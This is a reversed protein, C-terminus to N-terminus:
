CVAYDNGEGVELKQAFNVGFDGANLGVVAAVGVGSGKIDVWEFKGRWWEM